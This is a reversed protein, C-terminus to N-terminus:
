SMFRVNSGELGPFGYLKLLMSWDSASKLLFMQFMDENDIHHAIGRSSDIQPPTKAVRKARM